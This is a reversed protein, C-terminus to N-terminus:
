GYIAPGFRALPALIQHEECSLRSRLADTLLAVAARVAPMGAGPRLGPFQQAGEGGV